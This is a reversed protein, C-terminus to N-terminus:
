DHSHAARFWRDLYETAGRLDTGASRYAVHGDPRVLYQAAHEAGLRTLAEGDRDVLAGEGAARCALSPSDRHCELQKDVVRFRIGFRALQAALTLGTPGAGVVLVDCDGSTTALDNM